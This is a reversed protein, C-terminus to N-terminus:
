AAPSKTMPAGHQDDHKRHRMERYAVWVILVLALVLGSDILTSYDAYEM